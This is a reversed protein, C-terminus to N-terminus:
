VSTECSSVLGFFIVQVALISGFGSLDFGLKVLNFKFNKTIFGIIDLNLGIIDLM